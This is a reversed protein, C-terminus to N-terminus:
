SVSAVAPTTLGVVADSYLCTSCVVRCPMGMHPPPPLVPRLITSRHQPKGTIGTLISIATFGISANSLLTFNRRLEQRYGLERIRREGSDSALLYTGVEM